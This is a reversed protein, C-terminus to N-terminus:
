HAFTAAVNAYQVAVSASRSTPPSEPFPLFTVVGTGDCPLNLSTPIAKPVGYKKFNVQGPGISSPPPPGFFVGISTAAKGTYSPNSTTTITLGVEVTQGTLPHGRQGLTAPGPCVVRIIAPTPLGLSGNISGAFYQHPGVKTHTTAGGVGPTIVVAAIAVLSAGILSRRLM